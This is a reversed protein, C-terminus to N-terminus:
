LHPEPGGRHGEGGSESGDFGALHPASRGSAEIGLWAIGGLARQLSAAYALGPRPRKAAGRWRRLM